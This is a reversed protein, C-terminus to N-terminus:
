QLDAKTLVESLRRGTRFYCFPGNMYSVKVHSSHKEHVFYFTHSLWNHM